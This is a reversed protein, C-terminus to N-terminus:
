LPGFVQETKSASGSGAKGAESWTARRKLIQEDVEAAPLGYRQRSLERVLEAMSPSYPSEDKRTHFSFPLITEGRPQLRAYGQWNPLGLIDLAGFNPHLVPAMLRADEQGVRFVAISGVNGMVASLLSGRGPSPSALQATYQTALTLGLRFKRAESLLETFNDTPLTHCEDVYLFFDRREAPSLDGRKMAALKFRVVIQNALLASVSAGFRGKGLKVLLIKGDRMIDDINFVTKEQGVIRALSRDHIFRSFKSTIYTSINKLNLEGDAGEVERVFDLIVPDKVRRKLWSRFDLSAYCTAFELLTPTFDPRKHDGMLLKLMGRFHKEFIPGGTQKMDYIHDFTLYLEDIILDREEPTEWQLINFGPPRGRDLLNFLVVDEVRRRPIKGLISDVLDGHPDILALGRGAEIDQMVMYELLTSKGTGTQGLMFMHRMRDEANLSVPVVDQQHESFFLEVEGDDGERGGRHPMMALATRSRRLPLGPIDKIPPSPLRFACAAEELSFLETDFFFSARVADRANVESVRHGGRFIAQEGDLARDRTIATGLVHGLARDVPHGSLLYVGVNFAHCGLEHLRRVAGERIMMVRRSLTLQHPEGVALFRECQRIMSEMRKRDEDGIVFPRVRIVARVPDLQCLMMGIFRSWDDYTPVWQSLVNLVCGEGTERSLGSELGMSRRMVPSSLSAEEDRRHVALARSFAFPKIVMVLEDPETILNFEAEAQYTRLIARLSMYKRAADERAAERTPASCRLLLYIRITGQAKRAIDPYAIFHLELTTDSGLSAAARLLGERASHFSLPGSLSGSTPEMGAENGGPAQGALTGMLISKLGLAAIAEFHDGERFVRIVPLLKTM